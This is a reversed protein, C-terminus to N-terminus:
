FFLDIGTMGYPLLEANERCVEPSGFRRTLPNAECLPGIARRQRVLPRSRFSARSKSCILHSNILLFQVEGRVGSAGGGGAPSVSPFILSSM